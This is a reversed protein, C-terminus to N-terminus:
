KGPVKSAEMMAMAELAQEDAEHNAADFAEDLTEKLSQSLVIFSSNLVM